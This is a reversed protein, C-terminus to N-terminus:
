SSHRHPRGHNCPEQQRRRVTAGRGIRLARGPLRSRRRRADRPRGCGACRQAFYSLQPRMEKSEPNHCWVCDLPCGKLFVVTRIGPGDHLSFRQVNYITGEM